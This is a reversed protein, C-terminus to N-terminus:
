RWCARAAQPLARLSRRAAHRDGLRTRDGRAAGSAQRLARARCRQGRRRVARRASRGRDSPRGAGAPRLREEQVGGRRHPRAGQRPAQRLERRCACSTQRARGADCLRERGDGPAGGSPMRGRLRERFRVAARCARCRTRGRARGPAHDRRALHRGGAGRGARDAAAGPRGLGAVVQRIRERRGFAPLPKRDRGCGEARRRGQHHRALPRLVGACTQRRVRGPRPVALGQHRDAM